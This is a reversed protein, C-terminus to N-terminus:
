LTITLLESALTLIGSFHKTTEAIIESQREASGYHTIVLQKVKAAAAIQGCQTPNLHFETTQDVKNACEIVLLDAGQAFAIVDDHVGTDGTYVITKGGQTIKYGVDPIAHHMLQATVTMDGYVRTQESAIFTEPQYPKVEYLLTELTHAWDIIGEPGLLEWSKGQAGRQREVSYTQWLTLLDAVHDPHFHTIGIADLQHVSVGLQTLARLNGRGCDLVIKASETEILNGTTNYNELIGPTIKYQGCGLITLKM